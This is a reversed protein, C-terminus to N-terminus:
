VALGGPSGLDLGIRLIRGIVRWFARFFCCTIRPGSLNAPLQSVCATGQGKVDEAGVAVM